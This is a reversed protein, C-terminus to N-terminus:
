RKATWTVDWAGMDMVPMEVSIETQPEATSEADAKKKHADPVLVCLFLILIVIVILCLTTMVADLSARFSIKHLPRDEYSIKDSLEKIQKGHKAAPDEAKNPTSLRRMRERKEQRLQQETKEKTKM